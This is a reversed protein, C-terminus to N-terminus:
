KKVPTTSKSDAKKAGADDGGEMSNKDGSNM